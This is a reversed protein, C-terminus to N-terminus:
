HWMAATTAAEDDTLLSGSSRGTCVKSVKDVETKKEEKWEVSCYDIQRYGGDGSCDDTM